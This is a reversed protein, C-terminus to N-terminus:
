PSDSDNESRLECDIENIANSFSGRFLYESVAAKNDTRMRITKKGTQSTTM